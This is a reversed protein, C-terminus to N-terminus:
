QVSINGSIGDITITATASEDQTSLTINTTSDKENTSGLYSQVIRAYPSKFLVTLDTVFNITFDSRIVSIAEFKVNTPLKGTSIITRNPTPANDDAIFSYTQPSTLTNISLGYASAHVGPSIDRSSLSYSQAKRLDSVFTNRGAILSRKKNITGFNLILASTLIAMISITVILEILTFGKSKNRLKKIM